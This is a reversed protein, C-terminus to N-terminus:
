AGGNEAVEPKQPEVPEEMCKIKNFDNQTQAIKERYYPLKGCMRARSNESTANKCLTEYQLYSAQATKAKKDAITQRQSCKNYEALSKQYFALQKQYAADIEQQTQPKPPEPLDSGAKNPRQEQATKQPPALLDDWPVLGVFGVVLAVAVAAGILTKKDIM